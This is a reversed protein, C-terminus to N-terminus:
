EFRKKDIYDLIRNSVCAGVFVFLGSAVMAFLESVMGSILSIFFIVAVIETSVVCCKLLKIMWVGEWGVSWCV